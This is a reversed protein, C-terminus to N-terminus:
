FLAQTGIDNSTGMPVALTGNSLIPIGANTAFSPPLVLCSYTQGPEEHPVVFVGRNKGCLEAFVSLGMNTFDGLTDANLM